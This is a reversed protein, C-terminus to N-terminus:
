SASLAASAGGEDHETSQDSQLDQEEVNRPLLTIFRRLETQLENFALPKVLYQAVGLGRLYRQLAPDRRGTLVIVPIDRTGPNRKL